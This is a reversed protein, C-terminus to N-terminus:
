SMNGKSRHAVNITGLCLGGKLWRSKVLAIFTSGLGKTGFWKLM